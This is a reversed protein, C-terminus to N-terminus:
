VMQRIVQIDELIRQLDDFPKFAHNFIYLLPLLMFVAIPLVMLLFPLQGLNFSKPNVKTVSYKSRAM